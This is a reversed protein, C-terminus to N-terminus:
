ITEQYHSNSLSINAAYNWCHERAATFKKYYKIGFVSFSPQSVSTWYSFNKNELGPGLSMLVTHHYQKNSNSPFPYRRLM